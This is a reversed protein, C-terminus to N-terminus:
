CVGQGHKLWSSFEGTFRERLRYALHFNEADISARIAFPMQKLGPVPADPERVLVHAFLRGSDSLLDGPRVKSLLYYEPTTRIPGIGNFARHFTGLRECKWFSSILHNM